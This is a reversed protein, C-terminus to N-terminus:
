FLINKRNKILAAGSVINLIGLTIGIIILLIGIAINSGGVTKLLKYVKEM